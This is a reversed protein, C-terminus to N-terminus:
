GQYVTILTIARNEPTARYLIKLKSLPVAVLSDLRILPEIGRYDHLLKGTTHGSVRVLEM